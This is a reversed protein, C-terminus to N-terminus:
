SREQERKVLELYWGFVEYSTSNRRKILNEDNCYKGSKDCNVCFITNIEEWADTVLSANGCMSLYYRFILRKGMGM